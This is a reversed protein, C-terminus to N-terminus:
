PVVMLVGKRYCSKRSIQATAIGETGSGRWGQRVATQSGSGRHYPGHLHLPFTQVLAENCVVNGPAILAWCCMYGAKWCHSGEEKWNKVAAYWVLCGHWGKVYWPPLIQEYIGELAWSGVSIFSPCSSLSLNTRRKKPMLISPCFLIWKPDDAHYHPMKKRKISFSNAEPIRGYSTVKSIIFLVGLQLFWLIKGM